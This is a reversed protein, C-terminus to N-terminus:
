KISKPKCLHKEKVAKAGCKQCKYNAEKEEINKLKNSCAKKSM